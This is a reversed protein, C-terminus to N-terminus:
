DMRSGAYAKFGAAEFVEAMARAHAEKRAMSQGHASIWIEAGGYYGKRAHGNKLLWRGFASNAPKVTVWAFGCPGESVHWALGRSPDYVQMAPPTIAEAEAYGKRNARNFLAEFDNYQAVRAAKEAAIKERLTAYQKEM